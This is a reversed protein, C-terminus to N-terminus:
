ECDVKGEWKRLYWAATELIEPNDKLLGIGTNCSQCLAGRLQQTEHNHDLQPTKLFSEGCIACLNEQQAIQVLLHKYAGKQYRRDFAVEVNNIRWKRSAERGAEPNAAYYRRCREAHKTRNGEQNRRNCLIKRLYPTMVNIRIM